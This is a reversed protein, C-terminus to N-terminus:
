KFPFFNTSDPFFFTLATLIILVNNFTLDKIIIIAPLAVTCSTGCKNEHSWTIPYPLGVCGSFWSVKYRTVRAKTQWAREVQPITFETENTSNSGASIL